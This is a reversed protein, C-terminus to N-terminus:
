EVEAYPLAVIIHSGTGLIARHFHTAKAYLLGLVDDTVESALLCPSALHRACRVTHSTFVCAFNPAGILLHGSTYDSLRYGFPVAMVKLSYGLQIQFRLM